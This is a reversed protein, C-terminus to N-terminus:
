GKVFVRAGVHQARDVTGLLFEALDARSISSLMGVRLVPGVQVGHRAPGDTLRPPKVITWDLGSEGVVREQEVRDHAAVPQRRARARGMAAFVCTRNGTGVRAGTQCVLRRVGAQRMAEVIATTAPACFAEPYPPRPGLVCCVADAGAVAHAVLNADTFDGRVVTVGALAAPVTSGPRAFGRVSWGRALAATAVAQGTRGTLGFVTLTPLRRGERVSPPRTAM